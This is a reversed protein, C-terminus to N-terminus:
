AAVTAGTDVARWATADKFVLVGTGLGAGEGNKRGNTAYALDGASGTPLSAVTVGNSMAVLSRMAQDMERMYGYFADTPHGTAPDFWATQPDPLRQPRRVSM